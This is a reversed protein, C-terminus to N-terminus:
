AEIDSHREDGDPPIPTGDALLTGTQLDIYRTNQQSILRLHKPGFYDLHSYMDNENTSLPLHWAQKGDELNIALVAPEWVTPATLEVYNKKFNLKVVALKPGSWCWFVEPGWTEFEFDHPLDFVWLPDGSKKDIGVIRYIFASPMQPDPTTVIVFLEGAPSVRVWVIRGGKPWGIAHIVNRSWPPSI